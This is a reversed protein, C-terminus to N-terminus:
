DEQIITKIKRSLARSNRQDRNWLAAISTNILHCTEPSIWAQHLHEKWYPKPVGGRIEAFLRNIGDSTMLPKIPFSKHIGPYQSHAAPATGHLCGLVLYHDTNHWADRVALNQLLFHDTGLIYNTRSRM